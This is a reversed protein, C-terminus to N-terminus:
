KKWIPQNQLNLFAKETLSITEIVNVIENEEVEVSINGKEIGDVAIQSISCAGTWSWIRRTKVLISIKGALTNETSFLYGFHIGAAYSRVLVPKLGNVNKIALSNISDKRVYQVGNLEIENIMQKEM